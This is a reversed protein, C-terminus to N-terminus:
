RPQWAFLPLGSLDGTTSLLRRVRSGDPRMVSVALDGGGIAVFAIASGDPAWTPLIFIGSGPTLPRSGTGDANAVYIQADGVRAVVFALRRGDPSWTPAYGTGFRRRERGDPSAILIEQEARGVRSVFAIRRADPSWAPREMGPRPLLTAVSLRRTAGGDPRMVFLSLEADPARRGVVALHAGRPSWVVVRYDGERTVQHADGGEVPAVYVQPSGGHTSVFALRRGDPSWTPSTENGPLTTLRRAPGGAIPQIWIQQRGEHRHVFAVRRGDPSWVVGMAAGPVQTLQRIAMGDARVLALQVTDGVPTAVVLQAPGTSAAGRRLPPAPLAAAFIQTLVLLVPLAARLFM